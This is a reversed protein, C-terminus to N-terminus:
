LRARGNQTPRGRPRLKKLPGVGEELFSITGLLAFWANQQVRSVVLFDRSSAPIGPIKTPLRVRTGCSLKHRGTCCTATLSTTLASIACCVFMCSRFAFFHRSASQLRVSAMYSQSGTTDDAHMRLCNSRQRRSLMPKRSPLHKAISRQVKSSYGLLTKGLAPEARVKSRTM